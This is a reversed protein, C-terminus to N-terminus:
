GITGISLTKSQCLRGFCKFLIEGDATIRIHCNNNDHQQGYPCPQKPDTRRLSFKLDERGFYDTDSPLQVSLIADPQVQQIMNKLIGMNLIDPRTTPINPMKMEIGHIPREKTYWVRNPYHTKEGTYGAFPNGNKAERIIEPPAKKRRVIDESYQTGVKRLIPDSYRKEQIPLIVADKRMTSIFFDDDANDKHQKRRVLIREIDGLKGSGEVRMVRQPTYVKDDIIIVSIAHGNLLKEQTLDKKIIEYKADGTKHNNLRYLIHYIFEKLEEHNNAFHYKTKMVMHLSIKRGNSSDLWLYEHPSQLVQPFLDRFADTVISEIHSIITDTDIDCKEWLGDIDMYLRVPKNGLIIEYYRQVLGETSFRFHEVNMFSTYEKITMEDNYPNETDRAIHIDHNLRQARELAMTQPGKSTAGGKKSGCFWTIDGEPLIYVGGGM